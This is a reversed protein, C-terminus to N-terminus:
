SQINDHISLNFGSLVSNLYTLYAENLHTIEPPNSLVQCILRSDQHSIGQNSIGQIVAVIEEPTQETEGCVFQLTNLVCKSPNDSVTVFVCPCRRNESLEM